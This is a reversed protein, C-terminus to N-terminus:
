SSIWMILMKKVLFFFGVAFWHAKLIFSCKAIVALSIVQSVIAWISSNWSEIMWIIRYASKCLFFQLLDLQEFLFYYCIYSAVGIKFVPITTNQQIYWFYFMELVNGM